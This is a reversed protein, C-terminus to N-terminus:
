LGHLTSSLNCEFRKIKQLVYVVIHCHRTKMRKSGRWMPPWSIAQWLSCHPMIPAWSGSASVSTAAYSPDTSLAGSWLAGSNIQEPTARTFSTYHQWYVHTWTMRGRGGIVIAARGTIQLKNMQLLSSSFKITSNCAECYIWWCYKLIM